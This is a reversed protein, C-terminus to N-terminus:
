GGRRRIITQLIRHVEDLAGDTLGQKVLADIKQIADIDDGALSGAPSTSRIFSTGHNSQFFSADHTEAALDAAGVWEGFAFSSPGLLNRLEREAASARDISQARTETSLHSMLDTYRGAVLESFGVGQLASTAENIFRKALVTDSRRLAIQLDVSRVGLRFALRSEM